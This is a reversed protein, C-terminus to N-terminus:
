RHFSHTVMYAQHAVDCIGAYFTLKPAIAVHIKKVEFVGRLPMPTFIYVQIHWMPEFGEQTVQMGYYKPLKEHGLEQLMKPIKSANSGGHQFKHVDWYLLCIRSPSAEGEQEM